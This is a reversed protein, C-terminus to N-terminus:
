NEFELTHPYTQSRTKSENAEFIGTKFTRDTLGLDIVTGKRM